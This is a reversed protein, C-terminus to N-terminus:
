LQGSLARRLLSQKLEDFAVLKRTYLSEFRQTEAQLADLREVILAQENLERPFSIEITRLLSAKIGIATAGTAKEQIRKQLVPSLLAYKLLTSDLRKADPQMIIIRQAFVVKEDTDLQAVNGCPAETTFLVDGKVPIGRTMWADYSDPAVFEEPERQLYGMKVNKATILRLGSEIKSPTKGRYDIFETCDGITTTEWDAHKASFTQILTASFVERACRLSKEANAKATAIGEFAEDLLAVIRYQEELSPAYIPLDLVAHMDARPMRAGTCTANIATTTVDSLLWYALYRRDTRDKPLIPFIETSCRGDRDPLAVKKLYPRLRGYLVHRDTFRFTQSKADQNTESLDFRGSGSEIHELGLYPLGAHLGQRRDYECLDGFRVIAGNSSM